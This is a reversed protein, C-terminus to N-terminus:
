EDLAKKQKRYNSIDEWLTLFTSASMNARPFKIFPPLIWRPWASPKPKSIRGFIFSTLLLPLYKVETDIHFRYELPGMKLVFNEKKWIGKKLCIGNSIWQPSKWSCCCSQSLTMVVEMLSELITTSAKLSKESWWLNEQIKKQASKAALLISFIAQLLLFNSLVPHLNHLNHMLSHMEFNKVDENHNKPSDVLHRDVRKNTDRPLLVDM